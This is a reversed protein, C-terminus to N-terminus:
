LKYNVLIWEKNNRWIKWILSTFYKVYLTIGKIMRGEVKGAWLFSNDYIQHPDKWHTHTHSHTGPYRRLCTTQLASEKITMLSKLSLSCSKKWETNNKLGPWLPLYLGLEYVQIMQQLQIIRRWFCIGCNICGSFTPATNSKEHHCVINWYIQVKIFMCM